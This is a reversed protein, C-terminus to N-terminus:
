TRHESQWKNSERRINPSWHELAQQLLIREAGMTDTSKQSPTTYIFDLGEM